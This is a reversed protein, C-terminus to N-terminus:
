SMKNEIELRSCTDTYIIFYKNSHLDNLLPQGAKFESLPYNTSKGNTYTVRIYIGIIDLETPVGKTIFGVVLKLIIFITIMISLLCAIILMAAVPSELPNVLRTIYLVLISLLISLILQKFLKFMLKLYEYRKQKSIDIKLNM